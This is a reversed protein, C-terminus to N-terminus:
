DVINELLKKVKRSPPVELGDIDVYGKALRELIFERYITDYRFYSEVAGKEGSFPKDNGESLRKLASLSRDRRFNSYDWYLESYWSPNRQLVVRIMHTYHKPEPAPILGIQLQNEELERLLGIAEGRFEKAIKDSLESVARKTSWGM